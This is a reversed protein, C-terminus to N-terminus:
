HGGGAAPAGGAFLEDDEEIAVQELEGRQVVARWGTAVVGECGEELASIDVNEARGDGVGIPFPDAGSGAHGGGLAHSPCADEPEVLIVRSGVEVQAFLRVNLLTSQNVECLGALDHSAIGGLGRNSAESCPPHVERGLSPEVVGADPLFHGEQGGDIGSDECSGPGKGRFDGGDDVFVAHAVQGAIGGGEGAVEDVVCAGGDSARACGIALVQEVIDEGALDGGFELDEERGPGHGRLSAGRQGLPLGSAGHAGPAIGWPVEVGVARIGGSDLLDGAEVGPGGGDRCGLDRWSRGASVEAEGGCPSGSLGDAWEERHRCGGVLGEGGIGISSGSDGYSM